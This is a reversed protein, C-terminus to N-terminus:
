EDDLKGTLLLNGEPSWSNPDALPVDWGWMSGAFMAEAEGKNIGHAENWTDATLDDDVVGVMEKEWYGASGARLFVLRGGMPHHYASMMPRKM